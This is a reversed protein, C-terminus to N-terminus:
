CKVEGGNMLTVQKLIDIMDNMSMVKKKEKEKPMFDMPSFAKGKGRNVNAIVSCILASNFLEARQQERHRHCLL